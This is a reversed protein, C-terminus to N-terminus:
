NNDISAQDSNPVKLAYDRGERIHTVRYVTAYGGRGLVYRENLQCRYAHEGSQPTNGM